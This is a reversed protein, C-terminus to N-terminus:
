PKTLNSERKFTRESGPMLMPPQKSFHALVSQAHASTPFTIFCYGSTSSAGKIMKVGTQVSQPTGNDDRDWGLATICKKIYNEDMWGELDGMWLTASARQGSDVDDLDRQERSKALQAHDLNFQSQQQQQQQSSSSLSFGSSTNNDDNNNANSGHQADGGSSLLHDQDEQQYPRAHLSRTSIDSNTHQRQHPQNFHNAQSGFNGDISNRTNFSGNAANSGGNGSSLFSLSNAVSSNNSSNTYSPWPLNHSPTHRQGQSQLHPPPLQQSTNSSPSLINASSPSGISSSGNFGDIGNNRSPPSTGSRGSGIASIQVPASQQQQQQQQQQYHQLSGASPTRLPLPRTYDNPSKANYNNSNLISSNTNNSSAATSGSNLSLSSLTSHLTNGLDGLSPSTASSASGGTLSSATGPPSLNSSTGTGALSGPGSGQGSLAKTAHTPPSRLLSSTNGNSTTGNISQSSYPWIGSVAATAPTAM